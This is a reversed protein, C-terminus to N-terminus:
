AGEPATITQLARLMARIEGPNSRLEGERMDRPASPHNTRSPLRQKASAHFERAGTMAAVEAINDSTIGAGPMIVIRGRAREILQRILPAGQLATERQGSTLVRECGLAILDALASHPDRTCDFARHFTIGMGRAAVILERCRPMDVNGDADLAGIVV